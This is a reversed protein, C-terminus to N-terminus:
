DKPYQAADQLVDRLRLSNLYLENQEFWSDHTVAEDENSCLIYGSAYGGSVITSSFQQKMALETELQHFVKRVEDWSDAGIRLNIEVRRRPKEMDSM